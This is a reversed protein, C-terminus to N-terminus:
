CLDSSQRVIKIEEAIEQDTLQDLGSESAEKQMSYLAIEARARRIARLQMEPDEEAATLIAVPKGNSTVLYDETAINKWVEGSKQRLDRSNILKMATGERVQLRM